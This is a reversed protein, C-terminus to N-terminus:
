PWLGLQQMPAASACFVGEESGTDITPNPVALYKLKISIKILRGRTNSNLASFGSAWNANFTYEIYPDAGFTEHGPMGEGVGQQRVMGATDTPHSVHIDLPAGGTTQGNPIVRDQALSLGRYLHVEHELESPPLTGQERQILLGLLTKYDTIPPPQYM